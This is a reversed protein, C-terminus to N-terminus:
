RALLIRNTCHMDGSQMHCIYLGEPLGEGNFIIEYNQDAEAYGDFLVMVEQGMSNYVKLTTKSAEDVSFVFTTSSNFPNPYNILKIESESNKNGAILSSKNGCDGLVEYIAGDDIATEGNNHPVQVQCTASGTNGNGDDLELYITYVRGNGGAQREKRLQISKCDDAIVIDDLTNGDGGGVANEPEDSTAKTIYVDNITLSACNDWVSLVFDSLVFSVYQHNPPWIVIPDTITTIVPSTGDIVTVTAICQDTEGDNDQVTLTVTTEGLPYLGPPDLSLTIPDGDPDYSGDDVQEPTVIAECNEDANVTVDQCAAAPPLNCVCDNSFAVGPDVYWASHDATEDDVAICTLSPNHTANFNRIISNNGSRMDVSALQNSYCGFYILAANQTLDLSTLQNRQCYLRTLAINQTFDINTLQNDNCYIGTLASNQTLDLSILQNNSCRLHRLATNQSLDLSIFQNIYCLLETLATNQTVDLSALQNHNCYLQTLATNQTVDLSTLQNIGCRLDKMATNQTVDLSTLQNNYCYLTSLATNQSVDISTLQNNHCTLYKLATNHTLDLNTLQNNKCSLGTLINNQTLDLSTLQNHNCYLQTLATNQTVDLSTLQNHHCILQTLATNQSLDLSTIQNNYCWYHTLVTNQTLDLSTLQNNYCRLVTLATNQTVDLSTLQNDYCILDTLTTNQTVDLSTLPNTHCYLRTLATNQTVDLSTLQNYPCALFTLATNQTLDLSTLQNNYCYLTSLAINQTLDLSSLPNGNCNLYTFATNQTLDLSTLQNNYCYLTSLVTNQSVGLSTLQNYHCFLKTLSIFGEIGTLDNINKNSVNLTTLGSIDSTAVSQNITGDSDIGLDILAQEFNADPIATTQAQLIISCFLFITTSLLIRTKM